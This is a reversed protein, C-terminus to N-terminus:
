HQPISLTQSALSIYPSPLIQMPPSPICPSLTLPIYPSLPPSTFSPSFYTSQSLLFVQIFALSIQYHRRRSICVGGVVFSMTHQSPLPPPCLFTAHSSSHTYPLSSLHTPISSYTCSPFLTNHTHTHTNPPIPFLTQATENHLEASMIVYQKPAILKRGPRM